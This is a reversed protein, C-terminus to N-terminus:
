YIKFSVIYYKSIITARKPQLVGFRSKRDFELKYSNVLRKMGM